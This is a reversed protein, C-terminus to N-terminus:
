LCRYPKHQKTRYHETRYYETRHHLTRDQKTNDHGDIDQGTSYLETILVWVLRASTQSTKKGDLRGLHGRASCEAAQM